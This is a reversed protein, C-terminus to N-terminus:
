STPRPAVLIRGARFLGAGPAASVTAEFVQEDKYDARRLEAM